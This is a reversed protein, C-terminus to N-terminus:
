VGAHESPKRYTKKSRGQLAEQHREPRNHRRTDQRGTGPGKVIEEAKLEAEKKVLEADKIATSKYEEV